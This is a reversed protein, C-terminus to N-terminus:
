AAAAATEKEDVKAEGKTVTATAREKLDFIGPDLRVFTDGDKAATALMANMTADPTKGATKILGGELALRTIERYHLPKGAQQLILTAARKGTMRPPADGDGTERKDARARLGDLREATRKRREFERPDALKTTQEVIRAMRNAAGIAGTQARMVRRHAVTVQEQLEAPIPKRAEDLKAIKKELEGLAKNAREYEKHQAAHDKEVAEAETALKDVEAAIRARVREDVGEPTKPTTATEAM